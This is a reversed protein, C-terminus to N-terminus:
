SPIRAFLRDLEAQSLQANPFDSPAFAVEPSSASLDILLQLSAIVNRSLEEITEHKHVNRSYSWDMHLRGNMIGAQVDLLYIRRADRPRCAGPTETTPTIWPDGASLEMNSQGLYNLCIQAHPLEALKTKTEARGSLHLLAGHGIGNGPITRYQEKVVKLTLRPDNSPDFELYVPTLTTFWGVTRSLDLPDALQERGHGEMNILLRGQGTWQSLGHALSGLLLEKVQAHYIGPLERLLLDTTQSDLAASVTCASTESNEGEAFDTPLLGVRSREGSTWYAEEKSLAESRGYEALKGAWKSFSTTPAPLEIPKGRSVLDYAAIFEQLLINWSVADIALHHIVILLYNEEHREIVTVRLLPGHEINLSTQFRDCVAGIGSSQNLDADDRYSVFEVVPNREQQEVTQSWGTDTKHFRLRLADHRAILFAFVEKCEMPGLPRLLRFLAAQNYHNQDPYNHQFFDHQIPTLPVEGSEDEDEPREGEAPRSYEVVAALREVTPNEFIQRPTIRIGAAVARATVQLTLISDGGMEFFNDDINLESVRLLSKWIELIQQENHNRPARASTSVSGQVAPDPLASRDLKGNPLIPLTAIITLVGPIMYDPLRGHLWTRLAAPAPPIISDAPVVYAILGSNGKSTVRHLVVAQRVQPHEALVAEIEGLEIRFGHLKIQNDTRGLCHFADDEEWCGLDGTRYIREGGQSSYPDPLFREATLDPRNWYGRGVGRGSILLEGRVGAPVLHLHHDMVYLRTNAIPKGIPVDGTANTQPCNWFTADICTETPGYLNILQAWPLRRAFQKLLELPLVEGGCFVYRLSECSVLGPDDLLMRLLTPVVQIVTIGDKRVAAVLESPLYHPAPPYMVLTGGSLLPAYFEWVSADFSCPTRQLIKDSATFGFEALMWSMHNCLARHSIAAGKPRGTTGSTYIIYALNDPRIPVDLDDASRQKWESDTDLCLLREEASALGARFRAHSIVVCPSADELMYRLREAPYNPDLPVYAGGAKLVALMTIVLDISRELCIGALRDPGVGMEILRHALQNSKAHLQEATVREPGCIMVERAPAGLLAHLMRPMVAPMAFDTAIPNSKLLVRQREEEDCLAISSLSAAPNNAAAALVIKLYDLLRVADESSIRNRDYGISLQLEGRRRFCMLECAFEYTTPKEWIVEWRFHSPKSRNVDDIYRFSCGEEISVGISRGEGSSNQRIGNWEFFSQAQYADRALSEVKKLWVRFDNCDDCDFTLPLHREFLGIGRELEEDTRGDFVVFVTTETAASIRSLLLAWSSLLFVECSTDVQRAVRELEEVLRPDLNLNDTVAPECPRESRSKGFPVETGTAQWAAQKWFRQSTEAAESNLLENQWESYSSYQLRSREEPGEETHQRFCEDLIEDVLNHATRIDGYIAPLSLVLNSKGEGLALTLDFGTPAPDLNSASHRGALSMVANRRDQQSCETLDVIDFQIQPSPGVVQLPARMEPPRECRTRLIEYRAGVKRCATELVSAEIQGSIEVATVVRFARTPQREAYQLLDHQQPSLHFGSSFHSLFDGVSHDVSDRLALLFRSFQDLIGHATAATVRSRNYTLQIEIREGITVVLCLPYNTREYNRLDELRLGGDVDDTSQRVPYNKFVVLTEFLSSGPELDSWEQVSQLPAYQFAQAALCQAQIEQLWDLLPQGAAIRVRIPQTNIFLGVMTEVAELDPPRGGVTIGFVVDHDGSYRQLVLAWAAQVLTSLTLLRQRAVSQLSRTEAPSFEITEDAHEMENGDALLTGGVGSLANARVFGRLSDRWFREASALNKHVLWAIYDKYPRGPVLTPPEGNLYGDYLRFLKDALIQVSWGDLLLHHHSWMWLCADEAIRLLAMRMLPPKSVDFGRLRDGRLYQETKTKQEAVTLERWDQEDIPLKVQRHVVQIPKEIKEWVFSTRLVPHLDLLAQWAKRWAGADFHGRLVCSMQQFYVGSAPSALTHFLLGEQLPSLPYFTEINNM